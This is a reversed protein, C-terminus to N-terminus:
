DKKPDSVEGINPSTAIELASILQLAEERTAGCIDMMAPFDSCIKPREPKGFLNCLNEKTLHICRVGAPKGGPMGPIPSSISIAECCAGCKRCEIYDKINSSGVGKLIGMVDEPEKGMLMRLEQIFQAVKEPVPPYLEFESIVYKINDYYGDVVDWKIAWRMGRIWADLETPPGPAIDKPQEAHGIEHALTGLIFPKSKPEDINFSSPIHIWIARPYDVYTGSPLNIGPKVEIHLILSPDFENLYPRLSDKITGKHKPLQEAGKLIGLVEEPEKGTLVSLGATFEEQTIRDAELDAVLMYCGDMKETDLGFRNCLSNATDVSFTMRHRELWKQMANKM